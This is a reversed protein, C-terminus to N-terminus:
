IEREGEVRKGAKVEDRADWAGKLLDELYRGIGVMEEAAMVKAMRKAEDTVFVAWPKRDV